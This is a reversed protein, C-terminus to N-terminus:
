NLYIYYEKGKYSILRWNKKSGSLIRSIQKVKTGTKFTGKYYKAKKSPKTYRKVNYKLKLTVYKSAYSLNIDKNKIYGKVNGIKVKSWGSFADNLFRVTSGKKITFKKKSGNGYIDVFKKSWLDTDRKVTLKKHKSGSKLDPNPDIAFIKKKVTKRLDDMTLGYKKLWHDIDGHASAYGKANAGAHSDVQKYSLCYKLCLYACFDTAEEYIRNFHYRSTLNDECCEFQIYGPNYNFSGKSGAGCGWAAMEFPLTQYTAIKGNNDIGVFGHVCVERGGPKPVNWNPIYSSLRPTVAGTSHVIIGKPDIATCEKYCNNNTFIYKNLKFNTVNIKFQKSVIRSGDTAKAYIYCTGTKKPTVVGKKNIKAVKKNSSYWKLKSNTPKAPTIKYAPIYKKGKTIVDHNETFTIKSIMMYFSRLNKKAYKYATSKNFGKVTTTPPITEQGGKIITSANMFKLTKVGSNEFAGKKILKINNELILSSLNHTNLFAREGITTVKDSLYIEKMKTLNAFAYNGISKLKYADLLNVSTIKNAFYTWPAPNEKTYNLIETGNGKVTLTGSNENFSYNLNTGASGTYSILPDTPEPNDPQLFNTPLETASETANTTTGVQSFEEILTSNEESVEAFATPISSFAFIIALFFGLLNLHKKNKM